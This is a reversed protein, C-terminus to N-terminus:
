AAKKVSKAAAGETILKALELARDLKLNLENYLKRKQTETM